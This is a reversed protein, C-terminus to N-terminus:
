GPCGCPKGIIASAGHRLERYLGLREAAERVKELKALRSLLPAIDSFAVWPGKDDEYMDEGRFGKMPGYRKM